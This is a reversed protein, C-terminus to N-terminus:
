QKRGWLDTQAKKSTLDAFGRVIWEHAVDFWGSVAGLSRDSGIGRAKMELNMIPERDSRRMASQISVHLRGLEDPLRFATRWNIGEYTPLFREKSKKWAFDPFIQGVPQGKSWLKSPLIHNVYTLEFQVPSINGLDNDAVFRQFRSLHEQFGSMVSRFHPYQDSPTLKRWNHLLADRQLQIIANGPDSVFWVRPLPPKDVLQIEAQGMVQPTLQEVAVGVPPHEEVKPFDAKFADWLNGVHVAKFTELPAFYIGCIVEIVPPEAYDPLSTSM